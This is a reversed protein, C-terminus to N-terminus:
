RRLGDPTSLVRSSFELIIDFAHVLVGYELYRDVHRQRPFEVVQRRRL